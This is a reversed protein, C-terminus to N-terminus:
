SRNLNNIDNEITDSDINKCNCRPCEWQHSVATTDSTVEILPAETMEVKKNDREECKRCFRV